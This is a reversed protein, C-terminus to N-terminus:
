ALAEEIAAWVSEVGPGGRRRRNIVDSVHSQTVKAAQAIDWQRIGHKRLRETIQWGPLSRIPRQPPTKRLAGAKINDRM